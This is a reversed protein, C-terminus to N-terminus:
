KREDGWVRTHSVPKQYDEDSTLGKELLNQVQM